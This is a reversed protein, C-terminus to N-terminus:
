RRRSYGSDRDRGSSRHRSSMKIPITCNLTFNLLFPFLNVSSEEIGGFNLNAFRCLVVREIM